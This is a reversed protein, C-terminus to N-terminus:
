PKYSHVRIFRLLQASEEFWENHSRDSKLLEHFEKELWIPANVVGLLELKDPSGVQLDLLRRYVSGTTYGIKIRRTIEGRIFYIHCWDDNTEQAASLANALKQNLSMKINVKIGDFEINNTKNKGKKDRKCSPCMRKFGKTPIYWRSCVKCMVDLELNINQM